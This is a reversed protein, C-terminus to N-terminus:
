CPTDKHPESSSTEPFAAPTPLGQSTLALVKFLEGMQDLATLRHEAATIDLVQSDSGSRRLMEARQEIGLARLFDRQTIPGHPKCRAKKASEILAPFDVLASLDATGPQELVPHYKHAKVAQLSPRATPTAWGYDIILAAGSQEDLHTAIEHIYSSALPSREIIAGVAAERLSPPLLTEIAKSPPSLTFQLGPSIGGGPSAAGPAEQPVTPKESLTVLRECWGQPAHEFQRIPLADFFENALFFTPGEPLSSLDEHWTIPYGALTEKQKKRLSPSVEVLHVQLSQAFGPIGPVMTATRLLDSMLTGRGPGLEVLNITAPGGINYWTDAFWLGILEGFMQSIEPATIFDGKTGFPEGAMYYGHKPSILVEAMYDAVTIAGELRIRNAIRALAASSEKRATM